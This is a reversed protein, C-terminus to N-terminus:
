RNMVTEKCNIPPSSVLSHKIASISLAIRNQVGVKRMMKAIHAKLTREVIDLPGEIQKNSLGAVLMELVQRERNTIAESVRPLIQKRHTTTLGVFRSLVRRPVWISGQNVMRIAQAFERVAAGRFVYGRAGSIIAALRPEEDDSTGIVIVPLDPRMSAQATQDQFCRTWFLSRKPRSIRAAHLGERGDAVSIVSHGARTLAREIAMQLLRSDEVVLIKM